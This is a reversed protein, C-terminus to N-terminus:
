MLIISIFQPFFNYTLSSCTTLQQQKPFTSLFCYFVHDFFHKFARWGSPSSFPRTFVLTPVAFFSDRFLRIFLTEHHFFNATACCCRCCTASAAFFTNGSVCRWKFQVSRCLRHPCRSFFPPPLKTFSM